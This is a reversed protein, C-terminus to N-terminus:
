RYGYPRFYSSRRDDYRYGYYGGRRDHDCNRDYGYSYNYRPRDYYGNARRDAEMRAQKESESEGKHKKHKDKAFAGTPAILLASLVTLILALRKMCGSVPLLCLYEVIRPFNSPSQTCAPAPPTQDFLRPPSGVPSRIRTFLFRPPQWTGAAKVAAIADGAAVAEAITTRSTGGARSGDPLLDNHDGHVIKWEEYDRIANAAEEDSLRHLTFKRDHAPDDCVVFYCLRGRWTAFGSLIGSYYGDVWRFSLECVKIETEEPTKM